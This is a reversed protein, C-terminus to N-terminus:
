QHYDYTGLIYNTEQDELKHISVICFHLKTAFQYSGSRRLIYWLNSKCLSLFRPQLNRGIEDIFWTVHVRTHSFLTFDRPCTQTAHSCDQLDKAFFLRRTYVRFFGAYIRSSLYLFSQFFFREIHDTNSTFFSQNRTEM